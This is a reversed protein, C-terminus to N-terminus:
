HDIRPCQQLAVVNLWSFSLKRIPETGNSRRYLFTRFVGGLLPRGRASGRVITLNSDAVARYRHLKFDVPM